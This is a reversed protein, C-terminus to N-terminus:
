GRPSNMVTYASPSHPTRLAICSLICIRTRPSLMWPKACVGGYGYPGPNCLRNFCDHHPHSELGPYEVSVGEQMDLCLRVEHELM